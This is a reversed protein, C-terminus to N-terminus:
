EAVTCNRGRSKAQYLRQDAQSYLQDFDEIGPGVTAVGVSATMVHGSAEGPLELVETTRRIREALDIAGSLDTDPMLVAFEEGGMRVAYDTVRVLDLLRHAFVKLVADGAPHGYDDNIRKFYDLDILALSLPNATRRYREFERITVDYLKRRNYLGTLADTLSQQQNADRQQHIHLVALMLGGIIMMILVILGIIAMSLREMMLRQDAAAKHVLENLESYAWALSEEIELGLVNLVEHELEDALVSAMRDEFEPLLTQVYAMEELLPRYADASLESQRVLHRISEMRQPILWVLQNIQQIHISDPHELLSDLALRLKVPDEQARVVDAVMSTYNAGVHHRAQNGYFVALWLILISLIVFASAMGWRLRVHGSLKM